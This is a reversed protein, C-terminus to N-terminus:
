HGALAGRSQHTLRLTASLWEGLVDNGPSVGLGADPWRQLVDFAIQRAHWLAERGLSDMEACVVSASDPDDTDPDSSLSAEAVIRQLRQMRESIYAYTASESGAAASVNRWAALLAGARKLDTRNPTEDGHALDPRPLAATLVRCLVPDLSNRNVRLIMSLQLAPMADRADLVASVIETLMLARALPTIVAGTLGYPYGSGDMREHHQAIATAIAPDLASEGRAVQHGLLPHTQLQRRDLASMSRREDSLAPDLHMMGVDHLLAAAALARLDADTFRACGGLFLAVFAARVAHDYHDGAADRAVTLRMQASPPLPCTELASWVRPAGSGLGAELHALLPTAAVQRRALEVVDNRTVMGEATVCSDIPEGLTQGVLLALVERVVTTGPELLRAGTASYIARCVVMPRKAACAALANLYHGDGSLEVASPVRAREM